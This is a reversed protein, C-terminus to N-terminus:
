AANVLASGNIGPPTGDMDPTLAFRADAGNNGPVDPVTLQTPQAAGVQAKHFTAGPYLAGFNNVIGPNRGFATVLDTDLSSRLLFPEVNAARPGTLAGNYDYAPILAQSDLSDSVLPLTATAPTINPPAIIKQDLHVNLLNVNGRNRVDVPKFFNAFAPSSPTRYPMFPGLAAFADTQVGMSQPLKGLDITSTEITTNMDVPVGLYAYIYRYAEGDDYNGNHNSDVYVRERRSVYGMPYTDNATNAGNPGIGGRTADYLQLNAPQYRPVIVKVQVPDAKVTRDMLNALSGVAPDPVVAQNTAPGGIGAANNPDNPQVVQTVNSRPINPYDPTSNPGIQAPMQEWPLPNVVAGPGGAGTNDNWHANHAEMTVHLTQNALGLVSRDAINLMYQGFTDVNSLGGTGQGITGTPGTPPPNTVVNDGTTGHNIEGLATTVRRYHLRANVAGAARVGSKPIDAPTRYTRNGNVYAPLDDDTASGPLHVGAFPGVVEGIQKPAGNNTFLPVGGAHAALPNLLAFTPQDVAGISAVTRNGAADTVTAENGQTITTSLTVTQATTPDYIGNGQPDLLPDGNGDRKLFYAKATQTATIVRRMSGPTNKRGSGDRIAYTYAAIWGEPTSAAVAPTATPDGPGGKDILRENPHNSIFHGGTYPDTRAIFGDGPLQQLVKAPVTGSDTQNARNSTPDYESIQI